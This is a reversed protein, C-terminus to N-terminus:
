EDGAEKRLEALKEAFAECDEYCGTEHIWTVGKCGECYGERICEIEEYTPPDSM